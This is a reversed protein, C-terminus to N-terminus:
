DVFALREGNRVSRARSVFYLDNSFILLTAEGITDYRTGLSSCGPCNCVISRNITSVLLREFSYSTSISLDAGRMERVKPDSM